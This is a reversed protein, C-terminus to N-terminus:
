DKFQYTDHEHVSTRDTLDIVIHSTVGISSHKAVSCIEIGMRKALLRFYQNWHGNHDARVNDQDSNTFCEVSVKDAESRSTLIIRTSSKRNCLEELHVMLLTEFLTTFAFLPARVPSRESQDDIEISCGQGALNEVRDVALRLEESLCTTDVALREFNLVLSMRLAAREINGVQEVVANAARAQRSNRSHSLMTKLQGGEATIHGIGARFQGLLDSVVDGSDEPKRAGTPSFTVIAVHLGAKDLNRMEIKFRQIDPGILKKLGGFELDVLERESKSFQAVTAENAALIRGSSRNVVVTAMPKDMSEKVSPIIEEVARAARRFQELYSGFSDDTVPSSLAPEPGFFGLVLSQLALPDVLGSQIRHGRKGQDSPRWHHSYIAEASGRTSNEIISWPFLVVGEPHLYRKERIMFTICGEPAIADLTLRDSDLLQGRLRHGLLLSQIASLSVPATRNEPRHQDACPALVTSKNSEDQFRISSM